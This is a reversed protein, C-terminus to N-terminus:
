DPELDRLRELRRAVAVARAALAAGARGRRRVSDSRRPRQPDDRALFQQPCVGRAVAGVLDEARGAAAVDERLMGRIWFPFAHAEARDVAVGPDPGREM